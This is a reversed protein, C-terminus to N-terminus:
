ATARLLIPSRHDRFYITMGMLLTTTVLCAIYASDPRWGFFVYELPLLLLATALSPYESIGIPLLRYRFVSVAYILYLIGGASIATAVEILPLAAVQRIGTSGAGLLGFAICSLAPTFATWFLSESLSTRRLTIYEVMVLLAAAIAYLFGAAPQGGAYVFFAFTCIAAISVLALLKQRRSYQVGVLPSVILLLPIYIKSVMAVSSANLLHLAEAIFYGSLGAVMFRLLQLPVSKLAITGRSIVAVMTALFGCGTGVFFLLQGASMGKLALGRFILDKLALLAGFGVTAIVLRISLPLWSKEPGDNM